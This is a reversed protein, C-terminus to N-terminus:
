NLSVPLFGKGGPTALFCGQRTRLAEVGRDCLRPASQGPFRALPSPRLHPNVVGQGRRFYSPFKNNM